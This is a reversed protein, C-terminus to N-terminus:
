VLLGLAFLAIIFLAAAGLMIYSFLNIMQFADLKKKTPRLDEPLNNPQYNSDRAYQQPSQISQQGEYNNSQSSNEISGILEDQEM